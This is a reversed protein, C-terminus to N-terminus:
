SLYSYRSNVSSKVRHLKGTSHSFTAEMVSHTRGCEFWSWNIANGEDIRVVKPKFGEDSVIVEVDKRPDVLVTLPNVRKGASNFVCLTTM